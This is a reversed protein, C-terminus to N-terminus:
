NRTVDPFRPLRKEPVRPIRMGGGMGGVRGRRAMLGGGGRALLFLLLAAAAIWIVTDWRM